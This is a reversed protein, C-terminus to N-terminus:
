EKNILEEDNNFGSALVVVLILIIFISGVAMHLWSAQPYFLMILILAFLMIALLVIQASKLAKLLKQNFKMTEINNANLSSGPSLLFGSDGQM